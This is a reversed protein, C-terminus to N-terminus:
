LKEIETKVQNWFVIREPEGWVRIEQLIEDVAILAAKKIQQSNM